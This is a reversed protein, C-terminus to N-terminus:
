DMHFSLINKLTTTRDTPSKQGGGTTSIEQTSTDGTTIDCRGLPLMLFILAKLNITDYTRFLNYYALIYVVQHWGVMYFFRHPYLYADVKRNNKKHIIGLKLQNHELFNLKPNFFTCELDTLNALM